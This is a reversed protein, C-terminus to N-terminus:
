IRVKMPDGSLYVLLLGVVVTRRYLDNPSNVGYKDGQRKGRACGLGVLKETSTSLMRRYTQIDPIDGMDGIRGRQQRAASV